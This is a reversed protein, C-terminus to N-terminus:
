THALTLCVADAQRTYNNIFWFEFPQLLFFHVKTAINNKFNLQMTFVMNELVCACLRTNVQRSMYIPSIGSLQISM